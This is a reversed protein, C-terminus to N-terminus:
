FSPNNVKSLKACVKPYNEYKKVVKAKDNQCISLYKVTLKRYPLNLLKNVEIQWFLAPPFVPDEKRANTILKQIEKSSYDSKFKLIDFILLEMKSLKITELSKGKALTLKEWKKLCALAQMHLLWGPKSFRNQEIVQSTTKEASGCSEKKIYERALELLIKENTAELKNAEQLKGLAGEAGKFRLSRGLFYLQHAEETLFMSVIYSLFGKAQLREKESPKKDLFNNVLKIAKEPSNKLLLQESDKKVVPWNSHNEAFCPTNLLFLAACVAM